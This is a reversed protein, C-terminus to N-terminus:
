DGQVVQVFKYRYMSEVNKVKLYVPRIISYQMALEMYLNIRCIYGFSDQSTTKRRACILDRYIDPFNIMAGLHYNCGGRLTATMKHKKRLPKMECEALTSSSSLKTHHQQEHHHGGHFADPNVHLLATTM